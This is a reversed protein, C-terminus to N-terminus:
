VMWLEKHGDYNGGANTAVLIEREAFETYSSM